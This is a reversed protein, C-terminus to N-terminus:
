TWLAEGERTRQGSDRWGAKEMSATLQTRLWALIAVVREQQRSGLPRHKTQDVWGQAAELRYGGPCRPDGALRLTLGAWLEGETAEAHLWNDPAPFPLLPDLPGITMARRPSLRM